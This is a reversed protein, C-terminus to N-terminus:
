SQDKKPNEQAKPLYIGLIEHMYKVLADFIQKASTMALGDDLDDFLEPYHKRTQENHINLGFDPANFFIAGMSPEVKISMGQYTVEMSSIFGVDTRSIYVDGDQFEIVQHVMEMDGLIM